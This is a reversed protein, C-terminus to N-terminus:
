NDFKTMETVNNLVFGLATLVDKLAKSGVITDLNTGIPFILMTADIDGSIAYNAKISEADAMTVINGDAVKLIGIVNALNASTAPTFGEDVGASDNEVTVTPAAGTGTAVLDAKNGTTSATFM